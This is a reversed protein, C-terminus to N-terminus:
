RAAGERLAFRPLFSDELEGTERNLHRVIGSLDHSFDLPSAEALGPLDLPTHAHVAALDMHIEYAAPPRLFLDQWRRVIRAVHDLEDPTFRAFEVSM